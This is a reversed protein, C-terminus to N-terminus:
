LIIETVGKVSINFNYLILKFNYLILMEGVSMKKVIKLM